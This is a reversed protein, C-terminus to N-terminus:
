VTINNSLVKEQMLNLVGAFQQLLLSVSHAAVADVFQCLCRTYLELM